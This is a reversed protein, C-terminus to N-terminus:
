ERDGGDTAVPQQPAASIPACDRCLWAGDYDRCPCLFRCEACRHIPQGPPM